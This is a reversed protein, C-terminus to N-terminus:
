YAHTGSSLTFSKIECHSTHELLFANGFGAAPLKLNIHSYCCAYYKKINLLFRNDGDAIEGTKLHVQNVHPTDRVAFIFPDKMRLVM